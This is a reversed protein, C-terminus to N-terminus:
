PHIQVLNMMSSYIWYVALGVMLLLPLFSLAIVRPHLCYAVARWFSSLLLTMPRPYRKTANPPQVPELAVRWASSVSGNSHGSVAAM